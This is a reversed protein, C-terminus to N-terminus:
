HIVIDPIEKAQNQQAQIPARIGTSSQWVRDM